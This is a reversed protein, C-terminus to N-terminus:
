LSLFCADICYSVSLADQMTTHTHRIFYSVHCQPGDDDLMCTVSSVPGLPYPYSNLLAGGHPLGPSLKERADM